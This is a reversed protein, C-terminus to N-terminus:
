EPRIGAQRSALYKSFHHHNFNSLNPEGHIPQYSKSTRALPGLRPTIAAWTPSTEPSIM